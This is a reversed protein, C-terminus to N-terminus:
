PMHRRLMGRVFDPDLTMPDRGKPMWQMFKKGTLLGVYAELKAGRSKEWDPLFILGQVDDAVRTVDRGLVTGWTENTEKELKALDGDPSLLARAQMAPSDLEAPSLIEWGAARLELAVSDFLPINFQPVNTMPGALYWMFNSV